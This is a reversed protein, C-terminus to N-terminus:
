GEFLEQFNQQLHDVELLLVQLLWHKMYSYTFDIVVHLQGISSVYVTLLICISLTSFKKLSLTGERHPFKFSSIYSTCYFYEPEHFTSQKRNM